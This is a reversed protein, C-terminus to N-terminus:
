KAACAPATRSSVTECNKPANEVAPPPNAPMWAPSSATIPMLKSSIGPLSRVAIIAPKFPMPCSNHVEMEVPTEVHAVVCNACILVCNPWCSDCSHVPICAANGINTPASNGCGAHNSLNVLQDQGSNEIGLQSVLRNLQSQG